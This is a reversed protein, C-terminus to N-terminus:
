PLLIINADYPVYDVPEYVNLDILNKREEDVAKIWEKSDPLLFIENFTSPEIFIPMQRTKTSFIKICKNNPSDEITVKNIRKRQQLSTNSTKNNNRYYPTSIYNINHNDNSTSSNMTNNHSNIFESNLSHNFDLYNNNNLKSNTHTLRQESHPLYENFLSSSKNYIDSINNNNTDVIHNNFYFNAPEEEFFEVTRARVIKNQSTDFIRYTYPDQCYGLFIGSSANSDFKRKFQKPLLYVVKCGFVKIKNFDVKKKYLREYPINNKISSHPIRNYIYSAVTVADEWFKRSLMSDQLLATAISILVGNLREARENSQPNYPVTTQHNIGFKSYFKIFNSSLFETGNDSRISKINKNFSNLINSHWAKFKEYTDSKNKMFLVWNYRTHDDLITLVYKNGYISEPIPGILDIHILDFPYTSIKNTPLYPRNKLKSKLM